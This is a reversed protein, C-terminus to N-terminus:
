KKYYWTYSCNSPIMTDACTLKLSNFISQALEESLKEDTYFDISPRARTKETAKIDITPHVIRIYELLSDRMHSGNGGISVTAFLFM